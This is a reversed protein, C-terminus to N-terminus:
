ADLMNKISEINHMLIKYYTESMDEKNNKEVEFNEKMYSEYDNKINKLCSYEKLSIYGSKVFEDIYKDHTLPTKTNDYIKQKKTEDLRVINEKYEKILNVYLVCKDCMEIIIIKVIERQNRNKVTNIKDVAFYAIGLALMTVANNNYDSNINNMNLKLYRSPVNFYDVMLYVFYLFGIMIMGRNKIFVKKSKAFKEKNM